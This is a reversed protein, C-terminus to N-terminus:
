LSWSILNEGHRQQAFLDQSDQGGRTEKQVPQQNENVDQDMKNMKRFTAYM